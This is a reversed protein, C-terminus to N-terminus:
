KFATLERIRTGGQRILMVSIVGIAVHDGCVADNGDDDATNNDYVMTNIMMMYVYNIIITVHRYLFFSTPTSREPWGALEHFCSPNHDM